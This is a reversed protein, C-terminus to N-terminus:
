EVVLTGTATSEIRWVDALDATTRPTRDGRDLSLEGAYHAEIDYRGPTDLKLWHRLDEDIEASGRAPIRESSGGGTTQISRLLPLEKGDKKIHFWIPGRSGYPIRLPTKGANDAHLVVRVPDTSARSVREPIRWTLKVDGDLPKRDLRRVGFATAIRTADDPGFYFYARGGKGGSSGAGAQWLKGNEFLFVGPDPLRDLEFVVKFESNDNKTSYVTVEHITVRETLGVNTPPVGLRHAVLMADSGADVDPGVNVGFWLSPKTGADALPKSLLPPLPTPPPATAVAATAEPEKTADPPDVAQSRRCALALVAGIM